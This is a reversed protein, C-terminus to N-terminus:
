SDFSPQYESIICNLIWGDAKRMRRKVKWWRKTNTKPYLVAGNDAIDTDTWIEYYFDSEKLVVAEFSTPKGYQITQYVDGYLDDEKTKIIAPLCHVFIKEIEPKKEEEIRKVDPATITKREFVTEEKPQEKTEELESIFNEQISLDSEIPTVATQDVTKESIFNMNHLIFKEGKWLSQEKMIPNPKSLKYSTGDKNKLAM